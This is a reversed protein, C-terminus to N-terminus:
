LRSSSRQRHVVCVLCFTRTTSHVHTDTLSPLCVLVASAFVCLFCVVPVFSIRFIAPFNEAIHEVYEGEKFFFTSILVLCSFVMTCLFSLFGFLLVVFLSFYLFCCNFSNLHLLLRLKVCLKRLHVFSIGAIQTIVEFDADEMVPRANAQERNADFPFRVFFLSFYWFCWSM